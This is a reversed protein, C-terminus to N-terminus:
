VAAKNREAQVARAQAVYDNVMQHIEAIPEFYYVFRKNDHVNPRSRTPRYGKSMLLDCLRVSTVKIEETEDRQRRPFLTRTDTPTGDAQAVLTGVPKPDANPNPNSNM